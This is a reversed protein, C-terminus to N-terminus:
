VDELKKLAAEVKNTLERIAGSDSPSFDIRTWYNENFEMTEKIAKVLEEVLDARIYPIDGSPQDHNFWCTEKVMWIKKPTSM